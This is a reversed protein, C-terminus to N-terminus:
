PGSEGVFSVRALSLLACSFEGGKPAAGHATERRLFRLVAFEGDGPFVKDNERGEPARLSSGVGFDADLLRRPDDVIFKSATCLLDRYLTPPDIRPGQEIVTSISKALLSQTSFCSPTMRQQEHKSRTPLWLEPMPAAAPEPLRAMLTAMSDASALCCRAACAAALAAVLAAALTAALRAPLAVALTAPSVVIGEDGALELAGVM